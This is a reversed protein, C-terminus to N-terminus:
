SRVAISIKNSAQSIGVRSNSTSTRQLYDISDTSESFSSSLGASRRSTQSVLPSSTPSRGKPSVLLLKHSRQRPFGPPAKGSFASGVSSVVTKRSSLGVENVVVKSGSILSPVTYFFTTSVILLYVEINHFCLRLSHHAHLCRHRMLKSLEANRM